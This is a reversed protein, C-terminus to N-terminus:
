IQQKSQREDRKASRSLSIGRSQEVGLKGTGFFQPPDIADNEGKGASLVLKAETSLTDGAGFVETMQGLKSGTKCVYHANELV